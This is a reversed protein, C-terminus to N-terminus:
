KTLAYMHIDQLYAIPLIGSTGVSISTSHIAGEKLSRRDSESTIHICPSTDRLSPHTHFEGYKRLMNTLLCSTPAVFNLAVQPKNVFADQIIVRIM